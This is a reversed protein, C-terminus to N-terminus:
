GNLYSGTFSKAIGATSSAAPSTDEGACAFIFTKAHSGSHADSTCSSAPSLTSTSTAVDAKCSTCTTSALGLRIACTRAASRTTHVPASSSIPQSGISSRCDPLAFTAGPVGPDNM